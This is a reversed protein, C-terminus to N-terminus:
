GWKCPMAALLSSHPNIFSAPSRGSGEKGTGGLIAVKLVISRDEIM